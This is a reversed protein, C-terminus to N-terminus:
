SDREDPVPGYLPTEESAWARLMALNGEAHGSLGSGDRISHFFSIAYGGASVLSEGRLRRLLIVGHGALLFPIVAVASTTSNRRCIRCMSCLRSLSAM